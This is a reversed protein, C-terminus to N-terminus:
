IRVFLFVTLLLIVEELEKDFVKLNIADHISMIVRSKMDKDKLEKWIGYTAMSLYDSASSQIPFNYAMNRMNILALKIEFKQLINKAEPSQLFGYGVFRRKRGFASLLQHTKLSEKHRDIRWKAMEPFQNFYEELFFKAEDNSMGYERAIDEPSRGYGAGFVVGKGKAREEHTVLSPDKKLIKSTVILHIDLGNKFIEELNKDGSLLAIIRQEM